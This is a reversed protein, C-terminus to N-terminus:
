CERGAIFAEIETWTPSGGQGGAHMAKLAAAASAIRVREKLPLDKVLAAAYAGHFTDGCGTTDVVPVEFAPQHTASADDHELWWCGGVGCTVVVAQRGSNWLREAAEAPGACGTRKCAFAQNVILHDVLELLEDFGPWEDRELDGVVAVGADRAIKAARIMGQSGYHDVYIVRSARVVDLPPWDPSAGTSGSLDFLITRTHRSQDVLITSRIPRADPVIRVHGIDIGERQFTELM